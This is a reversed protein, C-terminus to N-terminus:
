LWPPPNPPSGHDTNHEHCLRDAEPPSTKAELNCIAKYVMKHWQDVTKTAPNVAQPSKGLWKVMDQFEKNSADYQAKLAAIEGRAVDDKCGTVVFMALALVPLLRNVQM